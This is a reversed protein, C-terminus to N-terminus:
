ALDKARDFVEYLSEGMVEAYSCLRETVLQFAMVLEAVEGPEHKQLLIRDLIEELDHANDGIQKLSQAILRAHVAKLRPISKLAVTLPAVLPRDARPYERALGLHNERAEERQVTTELERLEEPSPERQPGYADLAELSQKPPPIVIDPHTPQPLPRPLRKKATRKKPRHDGM